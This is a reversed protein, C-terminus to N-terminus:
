RYIILRSELIKSSHQADDYLTKLLNLIVLLTQLLNLAVELHWIFDLSFHTSILFAKLLRELEKLFYQTPVPPYIKMNLSTKHLTYSLNMLKVERKALNLEFSEINLSFFPLLRRRRKFWRENWKLVNQPFTGFPTRCSFLM